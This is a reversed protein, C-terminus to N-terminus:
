TVHRHLLGAAGQNGTGGGGVADPDTVLAQSITDNSSKSGHWRPLCSSQTRPQMVNPDALPIGSSCTATTLQMIVGSPRSSWSSPMTTCRSRGSSSSSFVLSTSWALLAHQTPRPEVEGHQVCAVADLGKWLRQGGQVRQAAHQATSVPCGKCGVVTSKMSPSEAARMPMCLAQSMHLLAPRFQGSGEPILPSHHWYHVGPQRKHRTQLRDSHGLTVKCVM